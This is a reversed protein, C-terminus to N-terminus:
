PTILIVKNALVTRGLSSYSGKIADKSGSTPATYNGTSSISGLVATFTAPPGTFVTTTGDEFTVSLSYTASGGAPVSSPGIIAASKPPSYGSVNSGALVLGPGAVLLVAVFALLTRVWTANDKRM